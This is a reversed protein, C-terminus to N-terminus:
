LWTPIPFIIYQLLSISQQLIPPSNGFIDWTANYPTSFKLNWNYKSNSITLAVILKLRLKNSMASINTPIDFRWYGQIKKTIMLIGTYKLDATSDNIINAYKYYTLMWLRCNMNSTPKWGWCQQSDWIQYQHMHSLKM